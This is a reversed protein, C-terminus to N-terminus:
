PQIERIIHNVNTSVFRGHHIITFEKTITEKPNRVKLVLQLDRGVFTEDCGTITWKDVGRGSIEDLLEYLLCEMTNPDKVKDSPWFLSRDGAEEITIGIVLEDVDLTRYPPM